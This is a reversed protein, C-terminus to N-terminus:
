EQLRINKNQQSSDIQCACHCLFVLIRTDITELTNTHREAHPPRCSSSTLGGSATLEYGRPSVGIRLNLLKNMTIDPNHKATGANAWPSAAFATFQTAIAAPNEMAMADAMQPSAWPFAVAAAASAKARLGAARGPM